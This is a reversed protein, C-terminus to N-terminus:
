ALGVRTIGSINIMKKIQNNFWTMQRKAYQRTETQGLIIAEDRLIEGKQWSRIADAGITKMLICDKSIEGAQVQADFNQVEDVAGMDMMQIFRQNCREYLVDRPPMVLTIDFAWDDPPSLKPMAQWKALPIGTAMFVEYAHVLRATHNPHYQAATQPDLKKLMDYFAPNGLTRQKKVAEARIDDPVFPIPSMGEMLTKIYLGNGGTIIPTVGNAFCDEIIPVVMDRWSGASCVDNPHMTGYLYHPCQQKDDDSPQATLIPLANYIQRSDCNIVAGNLDRARQIALASKGSATPGAIIHVKKKTM